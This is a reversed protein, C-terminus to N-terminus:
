KTGANDPTRYLAHIYVLTLNAVISNNVKVGKQKAKAHVRAIIESKSIGQAAASDIAAKLKPFTKSFLEVEAMEVTMPPEQPVQTTPQANM